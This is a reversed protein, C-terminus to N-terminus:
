LVLYLLKFSHLFSIQSSRAPVAIFERYYIVPFCAALVNSFLM